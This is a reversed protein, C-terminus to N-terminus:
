DLQVFEPTETCTFISTFQKFLECHKESRIYDQIIRFPTHGLDNKNKCEFINKYFSEYDDSETDLLTDLGLMKIFTDRMVKNTSWKKLLVKCDDQGGASALSDGMPICYIRLRSLDAGPNLEIINKILKSGARMFCIMILDGTPGVNNLLYNINHLSADMLRKMVTRHQEISIFDPNTEDPNLEMNFVEYFDNGFRKEKNCGFTSIFNQTIVDNSLYPNLIKGHIYGYWNEATLNNWADYPCFGSEAGHPYFVNANGFQVSTLASTVLHMMQSRNLGEHCISMVKDTPGLAIKFDASFTFGDDSMDPVIVRLGQETIATDVMSILEESLSMQRKWKQLKRITESKSSMETYTPVTPTMVESLLM